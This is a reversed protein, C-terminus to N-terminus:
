STLSSLFYRIICFRVRGWVATRLISFNIPSFTGVTLIRNCSPLEYKFASCDPLGRSMLSGSVMWLNIASHVSFLNSFFSAGWIQLSKSVSETICTGRIESPSAIPRSSIDLFCGKVSNSSSRNTGIAWCASSIMLRFRAFSFAWCCFSNKFLINSERV